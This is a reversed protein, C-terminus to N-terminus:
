KFGTHTRVDCGGTAQYVGVRRGDAMRLMGRTYCNTLLQTVQPLNRDLSDNPSLNGFFAQDATDVICHPPNNLLEDAMTEQYSAMNMTPLIQWVSNVYRSAPMWDYYAYLESSWGWVLVNSGAPCKGALDDDSWRPEPEPSEGIALERLNNQAIPTLSGILLASILVVPTLFAASTDRTADDQSILWKESGIILIGASLSAAFLVNAYHDFLPFSFLLTVVACGLVSVWLILQRRVAIEAIQPGKKFWVLGASLAWLLSTWFTLVFSSTLSIRSILGPSTGGMPERSVLYSYQFSLPENIFSSWTGAALLWIAFGVTPMLFGATALGANLFRQRGATEPDPDDIGQAQNTIHWVAVLLCIALLGLQPKAWVVLGLLLATVFLRSRSPPIQPLLYILLALFIIAIPLLETGLSHFDGTLGLVVASTPFVLLTARWWGHTRFIVLWGVWAIWVYFAGALLHATTLDLPVGVRGLAGLFLPWLWTHTTATSAGYPRAIDLTARRGEALLEAEDPNLMLGSSYANLRMAISLMILAALALAGALWFLVRDRTPSSTFAQM